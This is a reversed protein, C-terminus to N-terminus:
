VSICLVVEDSQYFLRVKPMFNERWNIHFETIYDALLRQLLTEPTCDEFVPNAMCLKEQARFARAFQCKRQSIGLKYIAAVACGLIGTAFAWRAFFVAFEDM